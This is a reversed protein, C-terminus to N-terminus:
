TWGVGDGAAALAVLREPPLQRLRGVPCGLIRRATAQMLSPSSYGLLRAVDDIRLAACGLCQAAAVLRALDAATKLSVAGRTGFRRSLTERSVGVMRAVAATGPLREAHLALLKWTRLQLQDVLGLLPALPQLIALRRSAVGVRMLTGAIVPEDIGEVLTAALHRRHVAALLRADESRIPGYVAVPIAAYDRRLAEFVPGRLAEPGVVVADVPQTTLLEELLRPTRAVRVM